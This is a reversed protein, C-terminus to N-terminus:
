FRWTGSVNLTRPTLTVAIPIGIPSSLGLTPRSDLANSVFAALEFGAWRLDARLNLINTSPDPLGPNYFFGAAPNDSVYPGPNHSHFVDEARVSGTIGRHLTFNREISATVGWPAGGVTDGKRVLVDGGFTFTQTFRADTYAIGLGVSVQEMVQAQVELGFGNSEATGPVPLTEGNVYSSDPPGNNWRIHFVSASLHVRGDLLDNKTGIEYSWLTEPPYPTPENAGASGPYVGASGYGKAATFYLLSHEDVQYSLVFRPTMWTDAAAAHFIPPTETVADYQSHGIRLGASATLRKTLRLAIQGFGALQTQRTVTADILDPMSTAVIRNPHRAHLSSLVTGAVWTLAADPDHSTLRVEEFFARQKLGAYWAVADTYSVPPVPTDDLTASATRDFYSTVSSVEGVPLGATIKLSTLYFTDEFPQQLLSGNRLDGAGVNSLATCFTSTNHIRTSQYTLSPTIRVSEDPAFMLAGRVTESVYRNSNADVTALTFPDVWDVYGGDARYWGSVRFGLVDSVIPGGTAAGVEYSTGGHATTAWEARALGSFATLSPQNTIFRVAGGQTHDGLLAGQPGRLVEVRDLDFTAPFSRAYTVVRAPPIPTDDLYVGVTTGHRATVGRIALETYSDGGVNSRFDFDVGPTLAGIQAMGKVGSVEMADQSWVAMDIPVRNLPEERRTATVVVEDLGAAREAHHQRSPIPALVTPTVAPAPFIRVTRDNLFEFALGTGDLLQTLAEFAPLGARAGKSQQTEAITSVYILQLGTQRGFAALAEAVPRAAIDTSLRPTSDAGSASALVSGWVLCVLFLERPWKLSSM